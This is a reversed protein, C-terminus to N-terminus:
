PMQMLTGIDIKAKSGKESPVSFQVVAVISRSGPPHNAPPETDPKYGNICRLVTSITTLQKYGALLEEVSSFCRTTSLIDTNSAGRPVKHSSHETSLLRLMKGFSKIQVSQGHSRPLKFGGLNSM